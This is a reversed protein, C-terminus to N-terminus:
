KRLDQLIVPANLNGGLDLQYLSYQFGNFAEDPKLGKISNERLSLSRLNDFNSFLNHPLATLNNGSLDLIQLYGELGGFAAPSIQALHCNHLSM